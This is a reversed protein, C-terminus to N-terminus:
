WAASYVSITAVRRLSRLPITQRGPPRSLGVAGAVSGGHVAGGSRQALTLQVSWTWCFGGPAFHCFKPCLRVASPSGIITDNSIILFIKPVCSEGSSVDVTKVYIRWDLIFTVFPTRAALLGTWQFRGEGTLGSQPISLLWIGRAKDLQGEM